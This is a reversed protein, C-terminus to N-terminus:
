GSTAPAELVMGDIACRVDFGLSEYLRIAVVNSDLVHLMPVDGGARIGAVLSRVLGAGLGQHRHGHDTCVASIEVFGPLRLRHGAMAVLAGDRRVGVYRGLEITRESFPGPRTRAVLALMEPVDQRGLEVLEIPDLEQTERHIMQVGRFRVELKWGAPIVAERQFLVAIGRPGVLRALDGWDTPSAVDPLAAFPAVAPDFRQAGGIRQAFAQDPGQLAHWVANDLMSM